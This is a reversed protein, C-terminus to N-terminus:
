GPLLVFFKSGKGPKSEVWIKGGHKELVKRVISLGLGEGSTNKPNLRHFIDYIKDNHEKAIGIGNDDVCFIQQKTGSIKIIGKRNPDLYKIANDLLNSFVQNIQSPDGSCSPLDGIELTIGASKIQYEFSGAVESMLENMDLRSINLKARGMRSIRLLGSLLSDMKLTSKHIYELAEPIDEELAPVLKENLSTPINVDKLISSVQKFAYNLEKGFGTINVLPSRLDHSTVYIIQELERNKYKLEGLINEREKEDKKRETINKIIATFSGKEEIEHYSISLEIPLSTGKKTRGSVEITKGINKLKGTKFFNSIGDLHIQKYEDPIITVVSQGKIEDKSYGFMNEASQNWVNIVGKEDISIVADQATDILNETYEKASKIEKIKEEVKGELNFAYEQLQDKSEGLRITMNNFSEALYGTEDKSKTEIRFALDGESIRKTGEVLNKIPKTIGSALFIAIIIIVGVGALGMIITINRLHALPAFANSYNKEALIVWDMVEIYRTVGLVQIGRYDTYVGITGNKNKLTDRVGETDVTQKLIGDSLYNTKTIMLKDRNVVYLEGTEGFGESHNVNMSNDPVGAYVIKNINDGNYRNVIIGIKKERSKDLISRSVDFFTNHKLVFSQRLGCIYSGNEKARLFCEDNSIDKGIMGIETSSVIKGNLGIIFIALIDPDLPQKNVTLHTNLSDIYYQVRDDRRTIEETCDQIFGDSSFDMVRTKNVIILQSYHREEQLTSAYDNNDIERRGFMIRNVIIGIPEQVEKSLFVTSLDIVMKNLRSDYHPGSTFASLLKAKLFYDKSSVDEGIRGKDTSVVIEGNFDVIFIELINKSLPMKNAIFYTSLATTYYKRRNEKQTIEETCEKIFGDSSFDFVRERKVDLYNQVHKKMEDAVIELEDLVNQKVTERTYIYCFAATGTAILISPLLFWFLIKGRIKM